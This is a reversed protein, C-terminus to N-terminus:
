VQCFRACRHNRLDIIRKTKTHGFLGGRWDRCTFYQRKTKISAPIIELEIKTFASVQQLTDLNIASLDANIMALLM